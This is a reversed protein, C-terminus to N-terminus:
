SSRGIRAAERKIRGIIASLGVVRNMRIVPQLQFHELLDAPLSQIDDVTAGELGSVLISVYGKVTPAEEAVDAYVRVGGNTNEPVVWLFVPTMCEHVQNEGAERKAALEHPLPPLRKSYDLLLELRMQPDVSAFTDIVEQLAAPIM